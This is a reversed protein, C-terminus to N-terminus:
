LGDQHPVSSLSSFSTSASEFAWTTTACQLLFPWGDKAHYLAATLHHDLQQGIHLLLGDLGEDFVSDNWPCTNISILIANIGTQLGPAVTMLMDVMSPTLECSIFIAIAKTFHMHIGHFPEPRQQATPQTRTAGALAERVRAATTPEGYRCGWGPRQACGGKRGAM